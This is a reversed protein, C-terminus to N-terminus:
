TLATGHISSKTESAQLTTPVSPRTDDQTEDFLGLVKLTQRSMFNFLLFLILICLFIYYARQVICISDNDM